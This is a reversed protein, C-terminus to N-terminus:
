RLIGGLRREEEDESEAMDSSTFGCTVDGRFRADGLFVAALPGDFSSPAEFSVADGFFRPFAEGRLIFFSSGSLSTTADSPSFPWPSSPSKLGFPSAFSLVIGLVGARRDLRVGPPVADPLFNFSSLSTSSSSASSWSEEFFFALAVGEEIEPVGDLAVSALFSLCSSAYRWVGKGSWTAGEGSCHASTCFASAPTCPRGLRGSLSNSLSPAGAPHPATGSTSSAKTRVM